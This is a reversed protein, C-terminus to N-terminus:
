KKAPRETCAFSNHFWVDGLSYLYCNKERLIFFWQTSSKNATLESYLM